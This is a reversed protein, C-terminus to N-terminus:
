KHEALKVRAKLVVTAGPAMQGINWRLIRYESYPLLEEVEVGNRMVKRKLPLPAFNKDAGAALDPAKLRADPVYETGAPVPIDGKVNKVAANGTNHYTAVYELVEGPKASNADQLEEKGNVQVVKSTKLDVKVMGAKAQAVATASLAVVFLFAILNNTRTKM